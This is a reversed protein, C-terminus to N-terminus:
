MQLNMNEVLIYQQAMVSRYKRLHGFSWGGWLHLLHSTWNGREPKKKSILMEKGLCESQDGNKKDHYDIIKANNEWFMNVNTWVSSIWVTGKMNPDNM